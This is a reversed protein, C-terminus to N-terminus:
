LVPEREFRTPSQRSNPLFSLTEQEVQSKELIFQALNLHALVIAKELQYEKGEATFSCGYTNCSWEYPTPNDIDALNKFISISYGCRNIRWHIGPRSPENPRRAVRVGLLVLELDKEEIPM